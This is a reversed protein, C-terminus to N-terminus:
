ANGDATLLEDIFERRHTLVKTAIRIIEEAATGENATREGDIVMQVYRSSVTKFDEKQEHLEKYLDSILTYDGTRILKKLEDSISM